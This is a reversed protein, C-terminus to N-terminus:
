KTGDESTGTIVVFRQLPNIKRLDNMLEYGSKGPMRINTVVALTPPKYNTDNAYELYHEASCYTKESFGATEAFASFLERLM